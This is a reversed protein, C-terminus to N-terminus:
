DPATDAVAGMESSAGEIAEQLQDILAHTEDLSLRQGKLAKTPLKLPHLGVETLAENFRELERCNFCAHGQLSHLYASIKEAEEHFRAVVMNQTMLCRM